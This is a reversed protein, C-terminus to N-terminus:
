NSRCSSSEKGSANEYIKRHGEGMEDLQSKDRHCAVNREGDAWMPPDAHSCADLAYSCRNCFACGQSERAFIGPVTGPIAKLPRGKKHIGPIAEALGKTYPHLPNALIQEVPGSEVVHGAYMIYVRSCLRRVVGLDHSILLVASGTERNLQKMLEMIQAQITVDLATTPEDALLLSPHNVFAMAIMVRQRQGGSLQHPYCQYLYEVDPLGVRRMWELVSQKAQKKDMRQHQLLCERIQKGVRILPNLATMPEQFIMSIRNGRLEMWQRQSLTLLDIMEQPNEDGGSSAEQKRFYLHGELKAGQPQLGMMSLSTMSKGCGSEGILAVMEGAHVEMNLKSVAPYWVRDKCFSLSFNEACIEIM